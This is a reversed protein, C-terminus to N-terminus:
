RPDDKQSAEATVRAPFTRLIVADGIGRIWSFPISISVGEDVLAPNAVEVYLGYTGMTPLDITVEDVVGVFLGDPTYIELGIINSVTELM